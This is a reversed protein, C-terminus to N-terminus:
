RLTQREHPQPALAGGDFDGDKGAAPPNVGSTASAFADAVDIGGMPTNQSGRGEMQTWVPWRAKVLGGSRRGSKPPPSVYMTPTKPEQEPLAPVPSLLAGTGAVVGVGADADASPM